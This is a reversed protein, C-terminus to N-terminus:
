NIKYEKIKDMDSIIDEYSINKHTNHKNKCSLCLNMKCENCYKIYIEKHM